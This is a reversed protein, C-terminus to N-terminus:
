SAKPSRDRHCYDFLLCLAALALLLSNILADPSKNGASPFFHEVSADIGWSAVTLISFFLALIRYKRGYFRTYVGYICWLAALSTLAICSGLSFLYPSKLLWGLLTLYPILFISLVLLTKHVRGTRAMLFPLLLIWCFALSCLVILSWTFMGSTYYDCIFCTMVTILFVASVAFLFSVPRKVAHAPTIAKPSSPKQTKQGALLEEVSVNLLRSLPLLLTIDPCSAGREWKSVAKDTVGLSGALDKQTLNQAKRMECIFAGIRQTQEHEVPQNEIFKEM